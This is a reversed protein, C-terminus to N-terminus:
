TTASVGELCHAVSAPIMSDTCYINKCNRSMGSNWLEGQASLYLHTYSVPSQLLVLVGLITLTVEIVRRFSRRGTTFTLCIRQMAYCPSEFVQGVSYAVSYAALAITPYMTRAIAGSVVSHTVMMLVSTAALPLYFRILDAVPYKVHNDDIDCM